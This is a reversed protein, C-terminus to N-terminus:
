PTTEKCNKHRARFSREIDVLASVAVPLLHDHTDGCRLCRLRLTPPPATRADLVLWPTRDTM